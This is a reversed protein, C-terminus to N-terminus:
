NQLCVTLTMSCYQSTFESLNLNIVYQFIAPVSCGYQFYLIHIYCNCLPIQIYTYIKLSANCLYAWRVLISYWYKFWQLHAKLYVSDSHYTVNMIRILIPIVNWHFCYNQISILWLLTNCICINEIWSCMISVKILVKCKLWFHFNKTVEEDFHLLVDM